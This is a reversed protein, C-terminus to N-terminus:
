TMMMRLHDGDWDPLINIILALPGLSFGGPVRRLRTIRPEYGPLTIEPEHVRQGGQPPPSLAKKAM